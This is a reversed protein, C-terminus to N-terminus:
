HSPIIGRKSRQLPQCGTRDSARFPGGSFETIHQIANSSQTDLWDSRIEVAYRGQIPDRYVSIDGPNLQDYTEVQGTPDVRFLHIPIRTNQMWFNRPQTQPWVFLLASVAPPEGSFGIQRTEPTELVQANFSWCHTSSHAQLRISLVSEASQANMTQFFAFFLAFLPNLPQRKMRM